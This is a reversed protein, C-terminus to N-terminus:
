LELKYGNSLLWEIRDCLLAVLDDSRFTEGLSEHTAYNIWCVAWKEGDSTVSLYLMMDPQSSKLVKPIMGLLNMVTFAPDNDKLRALERLVYLVYHPDLPYEGKGHEEWLMSAKSAPVGLEVLRRSQEITTVGKM